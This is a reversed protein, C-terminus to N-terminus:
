ASSDSDDLAVEVLLTTGAGAASEVVLQGGIAAVRERMGLLGLAGRRQAAVPDFGIGNDEVLLNLRRNAWSVGIGVTDAQAHRAVNSLAGQAVRYLAVEVAPPISLGRLGLTEFQVALGHDRGFEECYQKLAPALGLRDLSVPRLDVALSHLGALIQDAMAQMHAIREAAQVAAPAAAGGALEQATVNLQLKLAALVQAAENYLQDAVHRREHEQIELVRRSLAQLQVRAAEVEQYLAANALAVALSDTVQTALALTEEAWPGTEAKGLMLAGLKREGVNLPVAVVARVGEALLARPVPSPDAAAALDTFQSVQGDFVQRLISAAQISLRTGTASAPSVPGDAALVEAVGHQVDFLQVSARVAGTLRRIGALAIRAIEDTSQSALIARHIRNLVQLQESHRQLGANAQELEQTRAVVRRELDARADELSANAAQLATQVTHLETIDSLTAVAGRLSGDAACIPAASVVAWILRARAVSPPFVLIENRVTEGKLARMLPLQNTAYPKGDLMMPVGFVLRQQMDWGEATTNYGLMEEAVRNMRVIRGQPDYIVLADPIAALVADREALLEAQSRRLQASELALALMTGLRRVFEVESPQFQRGPFHSSCVIMGCVQGAINVPTIVFAYMGLRAMGDRYPAPLSRADNQVVVRSSQGLLRLLPFEAETVHVGLVERPLGHVARVAWGEDQRLLITVGECGLAAAGDGAVRQLIADDDTLMDLALHLEHLHDGLMKARVLEASASSSVETGGTREDVVSLSVFPQVERLLAQGGAEPGATDGPAPCPVDVFLRTGGPGSEIDLTGGLMEVRERMGLLGLRATRYAVTVDFGQGDDEIVLNLHDGRAALVIGAQHAQAHRAINTLGEQVIRYIATAVHDPLRRQDLGEVLFEVRIDWQRGFAAVYQELAPVLGYRDLSPPRLNMALQHLGLMVEDISAQLGDLEDQVGPTFREDRSLLSLKLKLATMMQGAEDHLERAIARREAEQVEVLRRALDQHEDPTHLAQPIHLALGSAPLRSAFLALVEARQIRWVHGIKAAPLTGSRCLAKVTNVHLHLLDAAQETTMVLPLDDWAPVESM